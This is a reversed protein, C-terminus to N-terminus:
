IVNHTRWRRQITDTNLDTLSSMKEVAFNRILISMDLYIENFLRYMINIIHLYMSHSLESMTYYM